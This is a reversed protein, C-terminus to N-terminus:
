LVALLPIVLWGWDRRDYKKLLLYIGPGLLLLYVLLVLALTATSPLGAAPINRLVWSMEQAQYPRQNMAKSTGASIIHHPDIRNLLDTWMSVNGSWNVFPPSALDFAMYIINGKAKEKQVILPSNGDLLLAQGSVIKGESIVFSTGAPFGSAALKGALSGGKVTRSGELQVPLMAAPLTSLTKQWNSGGALVLMGGREVWAQVATLQHSSLQSSPFNNIAILDISDLLLSNETIDEGRLNIVTIRQGEAPLKIGTLHNLTAPDSALVGALVEQPQLIVIRVKTSTIRKGAAMLDLTYTKAENAPIYMNVKKKSGRPLQVERQHLIRSGNYTSSFELTGKIEPGNNEVTVQLPFPQGLRTYGNFGAIAKINVMEDASAGQHLGFVMILALVLVITTFHKYRTRM